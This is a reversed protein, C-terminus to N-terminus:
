VVLLQGARGDQQVMVTVLHLDTTPEEHGASETHPRTILLSKVCTQVLGYYFSILLASYSAGKKV